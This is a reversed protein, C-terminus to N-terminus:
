ARRRKRREAAEMKGAPECVRCLDAGARVAYGCYACVDGSPEPNDTVRFVGVFDIATKESYRRKAGM